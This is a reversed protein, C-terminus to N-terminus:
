PKPRFNWFLTYFINSFSKGLWEWFGQIIEPPPPPSVPFISFILSKEYIWSHIEIFWCIIEYETTDIWGAIGNKLNIPHVAWALTITAMLLFIGCFLIARSLKKIHDVMKSSHPQPKSDDCSMKEEVSVDEVCADERAKRLDKISRGFTVYFLQGAHDEVLVGKGDKTGIKNSILCPTKIRSFLVEVKRDPEANDDEPSGAVISDGFTDVQSMLMVISKACSYNENIGWHKETVEKMMPILKNGSLDLWDLNQLKSFCTDLYRIENFSLDLHRLSTLLGFNKPLISIWNHSIDLHQLNEFCTAFEDPLCMIGNNSLDIITVKPFDKIYDMPVELLDDFSLDLEDDFIGYHICQGHVMKYYLQRTFPFTFVFIWLNVV